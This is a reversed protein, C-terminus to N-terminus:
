KKFEKKVMEVSELYYNDNTKRYTYLYGRSKNLVDKVTDESYSGLEKNDLDYLKNDKLIGVNVYVLLGDSSYSYGYLNSINSGNVCASEERVIKSGTINYKYGNYIFNSFDVKYDNELGFISSLATKYDNYNFEDALKNDLSLKKFVMNNINDTKMGKITLKESNNIDWILANKCNDVDITNYITLVEAPVVSDIQGYDIVIPEKGDDKTLLIVAIIAGVLLVAGALIFAKKKDM